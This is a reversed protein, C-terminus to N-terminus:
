IKQFSVQIFKTVNKIIMGRDLYLKVMSSMLLQQKGHYTQVPTPGRADINVGEDLCVKRMFDSLMDTKIEMRQIVPPFLFSGFSDIITQPTEVDAVLFGFVEEDRVAQLLTSETDQCLIRGIETSPKTNMLEKQIKWDCERITILHGSKSMEKQKMDDDYRKQRANHIVDDPVCCGPHWFCGLYEFYYHEGDKVMFGDVPKGCIDYEGQHYATHIRQRVGNSDVCVPQTQMWQLWEIQGLSVGKCMVKKSFKKGNMEWIIGPSLPMPQDQAWLYLSNFDWFSFYTFKEGNPAIRTSDPGTEDLTNIHRHFLNVLGGLQNNRFLQRIEDFDKGFSFIYPMSQDFLNMAATFAISPLSRKEMPNVKFHMYFSKFANEIATVLPVVDLMQYYRLWDSFNHMKDPHGNPLKRRRNYEERAAIYEAESVNKGKLDSYFENYKPFSIQCEIDEISNFLQYPFISKKLEGTYWQKFYKDLSCPASFSLVDLITKTLTINSHPHGKM